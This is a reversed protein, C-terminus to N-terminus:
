CLIRSCIPCFVVGTGKHVKEVVQPSLSMHCGSCIKGEAPVVVTAGIGPFLRDFVELLEPDTVERADKLPGELASIEKQYEAVENGVDTRVEELQDKAHSARVSLDEMQNKIEDIKEIILLLSAEASSKEEEFKAIQAKLGNFESAQTAKDLQKQCKTIKEVFEAVDLEFKNTLSRGQAVRDEFPQAERVLSELAGESTALREMKKEIESQFLAIKGSITQVKKIRDISEM